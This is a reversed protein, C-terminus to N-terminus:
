TLASVFTGPLQDTVDLFEKEGVAERLTTLVARVHDRATDEDVGEREAVRELFAEVSMSTAKGGSNSMGRKLPEHLATPLRAILDEVEGGAIRQALTELVADAVRRAADEDVAARDAVRRLFTEASVVEVYPGRPLLPAYDAPLEAIVDSLEQPTVARSLADFVARVHREASAIDVDERRAVRALFEDVDFREAPGAIPLWPAVEPPLQEVLDRAEGDAIREGLTELTARVAQEARERSIDAHQEVTTMFQEYDM